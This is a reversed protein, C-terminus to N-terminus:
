NSRCQQCDTQQTSPGYTGAWVTSKNGDEDTASTCYTQCGYGTLLLPLPSCTLQVLRNLLLGFQRSGRQM